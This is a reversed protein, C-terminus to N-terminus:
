PTRRFIRTGPLAAADRSDVAQVPKARSSDHPRGTVSGRLRMPVNRLYFLDQPAAPAQNEPAAAPTARPLAENRLAARKQGCCM